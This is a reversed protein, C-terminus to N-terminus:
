AILSIIESECFILGAEHHGFFVNRASYIFLGLYSLTVLANFALFYVRCGRQEQSKDAKELAEYKIPSNSTVAALRLNRRVKDVQFLKGWFM